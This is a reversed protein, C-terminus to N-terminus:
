RVAFWGGVDDHPDRGFEEVYLNRLRVQEEGELEFYVELLEGRSVSALSGLERMGRSVAVAGGARIESLARQQLEFALLPATLPLCAAALPLVVWRARGGALRAQRRVLVRLADCYVFLAFFPSLGLLGLGYAIIGILSVPLLPLFALAHIGALLAGVAVLPLAAATWGRTRPAFLALGCGILSLALLAYVTVQRLTSAAGSRPLGGQGWIVPDVQMSSDLAFAVIPVVIGFVLWVARRNGSPDLDREVEAGEAAADPSDSM